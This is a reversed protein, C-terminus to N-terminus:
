YIREGGTNGSLFRQEYGISSMSPTSINWIALLSSRSAYGIKINRLKDLFITSMRLPPNPESEASLIATSLDEFIIPHNSSLM